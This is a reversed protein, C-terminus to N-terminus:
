IKVIECPVGAENAEFIAADRKEITQYSILTTGNFMRLIRGEVLALNWEAKHAKAEKKTM